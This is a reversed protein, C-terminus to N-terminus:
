APKEPKEYDCENCFLIVKSRNRTIVDLSKCEPCRLRKDTGDPKPYGVIQFVDKLFTNIDKPHITYIDVEYLMKHTKMFKRMAVLLADAQERSNM